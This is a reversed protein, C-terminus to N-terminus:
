ASPWLHIDRWPNHSQNRDVCQSVRQSHAQLKRVEGLATCYLQTEALLIMWPAEYCAKGKIADMWHTETSIGWMSACARVCVCICLPTSSLDVWICGNNHRLAGGTATAPAKFCCVSSLSFVILLIYLFACKVGTSRYQSIWTYILTQLMATTARFWWLSLTGESRM